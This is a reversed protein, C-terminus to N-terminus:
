LMARLGRCGGISLHPPPTDTCSAAGHDPRVTEVGPDGPETPVATDGAGHGPGAFQERHLGHRARRYPAPRRNQIPM